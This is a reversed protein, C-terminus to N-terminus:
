APRGTAAPLRSDRAQSNEGAWAFLLWGLHYPRCEWLPELCRHPQADEQVSLVELAPHIFRLTDTRRVAECILNSSFDRLDQELENDGFIWRLGKDIWVRFDSQVVEGIAFLAMPALAYQHVSYVPYRSLVKGTAADYHWWWQGLPGQLECLTLACDLARDSAKRVEFSQAYRALAYVSYVQDAFSGVRGRLLGSLSRKEALHSFLGSDGQNQKLLVYAKDAVDRLHDQGTLNLHSIGSLFWALEMTCAQRGERFARLSRDLDFMSRVRAAFEPGADACAWLLLGLDGLNAIWRTDKLLAALIPRADIPCREGLSQLRQLGLASILTYRRSPGERLLGKPTRVLRHCFLNSGRDFMSVLGSIALQNLSVIEAPNLANQNTGAADIM